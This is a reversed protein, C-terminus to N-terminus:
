GASRRPMLRHVRERRKEAEQAAHESRKQIHKRLVGATWIPKGGVKVGPPLEGRKVMRSLARSGCAFMQCLHDADMPADEPMRALSGLDMKQDATEKPEEEPSSPTLM